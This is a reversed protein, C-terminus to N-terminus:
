QWFGVKKAPADKGKKKIKKTERKKRKMKTTITMRMIKMKRRMRMWTMTKQSAEDPIRSAELHSQPVRSQIQGRIHNLLLFPTQPSISSALDLFTSPILPSLHYYLCLPEPQTRLIFLINLRKYIIFTYVQFDIFLLGLSGFENRFYYIILVKQSILHREKTM